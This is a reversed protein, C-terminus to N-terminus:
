SLLEMRLLKLCFIFYGIFLGLVEVVFVTFYQSLFSSLVLLYFSSEHECIPFLLITLIAMISFAVKLNLTIGM